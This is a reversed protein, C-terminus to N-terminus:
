EYTRIYTVPRASTFAKTFLDTRAYGDMDRGIPLGLYYLVTPALDVISGRPLSGPAVESGYALLFGDPAREHTGSLNPEGLLRALARKSLTMPEMGFGSMVMLLDGPALDQMRGGIEADIYAYYRDLVAGFQAIEAPSADGFLHPDAYRLFTHAVTDLGQYRIASLRVPIRAELSRAAEAYIRDWRVPTVGGAPADDPLAAPLVEPWPTFMSADFVAGTADAAARPWAARAHDTRLPSSTTLHFRDSVLFGEIPSVPFSVPWRVVGSRVGLSSLIDWLPRAQLDDAEVPAASAYGLHVLAHAFCYDPLIDVLADGGARYRAASRIGNSPPYKGTAAAAWVPEPQTPKLTALDLTGGRELIRALNPLRGRGVRERIFGLSAGDLLLLRIAASGSSAAPAVRQGAVPPTAVISARAALPAAISAAVIVVLMAAAVRGGRRAFSFRAIAVALLLLAAATLAAAGEAMPGAADEGLVARFGRLNLWSGAAAAGALLAALWALLRVSIWAPALARAALLDRVVLLVFIGISLHLGYFSLMVRFWAALEASALPLRPNLQLLLVTMYAAALAGAAVANTLMRLYRVM